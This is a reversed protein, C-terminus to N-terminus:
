YDPTVLSTKSHAALKCGTAAGTFFERGTNNVKIM